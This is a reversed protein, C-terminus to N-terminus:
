NPDRIHDVRTLTRLAKGAAARVAKDEDNLCQKLSPVARTDGLSGLLVAADERVWADNDELALLLEPLAERGVIRVLAAAAARRVDEDLDDTVAKRVTDLALRNGVLGLIEMARERVLWNETAAARVLLDVAREDRVGGLIQDIFAGAPVSEERYLADYVFDYLNVRDGKRSAIEFPKEAAIWGVVPVQVVPEVPHDTFVNLLGELSQLPSPNFVHIEIVYEQDKKQFTVEAATPLHPEVKVVEVKRDGRNVLTIRAMASQGEDVIGFDLRYPQVMLDGLVQGRVPVQVVPLLPHNTEIRIWGLIRGLPLSPDLRLMVVDGLAEASLYPVYSDVRLPGIPQGDQSVVEIVPLSNLDGRHVSFELFRPRWGVPVELTGQVKVRVVPEGPDNTYLVVQETFPGRDWINSRFEIWLSGERGPPLTLDLSEAKLRHSSTRVLRIRLTETGENHLFLVHRSREGPVLPGFEYLRTSLVLDPGSSVASVPGQGSAVALVAWALGLATLV